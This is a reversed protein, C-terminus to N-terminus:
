EGMEKNLCSYYKNREMWCHRVGEGLVGAVYGGDSADCAVEKRVHGLVHVGGRM